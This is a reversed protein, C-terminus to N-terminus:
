YQIKGATETVITNDRVTESCRISDRKYERVTFVAEKLNQITENELM